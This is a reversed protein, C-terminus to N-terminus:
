CLQVIVALSATGERFVLGLPLCATSVSNIRTHFHFQNCTIQLSSSSGVKRYWALFESGVRERIPANVCVCVCVCQCNSVYTERTHLMSQLQFSSRQRHSTSPIIICYLWPTFTQAALVVSDRFDPHRRILDDHFCLFNFLFISHSFIFVGEPSSSEFEMWINIFFALAWFRMWYVNFIFSHIGLSNSIVCCDSLAKFNYNLIRLYTSCILVDM